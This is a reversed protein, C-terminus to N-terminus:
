HHIDSVINLRELIQIRQAILLIESNIIKQRGEVISKNQAIIKERKDKYIATQCLRNIIDDHRVKIIQLVFDILMLLFESYSKIEERKQLCLELNEKIRNLKYIREM